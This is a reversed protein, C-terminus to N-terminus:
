PIKEGRTFDNMEIKRLRWESEGVETNPKSNRSSKM